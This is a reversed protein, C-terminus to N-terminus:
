NSSSESCNGLFQRLHIKPLNRASRPLFGRAHGDNVRNRAKARAAFRDVHRGIVSILGHPWRIQLACAAEVAPLPNANPSRTIIVDSREARGTAKSVSRPMPM